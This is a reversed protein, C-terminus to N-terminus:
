KWEFFEGRTNGDSDVEFEFLVALSNLRAWKPSTTQCYVAGRYSVAGGKQLTGVGQGVWSLVDGDRSMTIGQGEGFLSGDPRVVAVYTGTETDAVGLLSGSSQFSTEMKPGGGLSPLVRQTTVRGRGEGIREGLM